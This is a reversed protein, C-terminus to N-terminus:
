LIAVGIAIRGAHRQQCFLQDPKLGIHHQNAATLADERCFLCRGADRNDVDVHDVGDAKAQDCAFRTRSGIDGPTRQRSSPMAPFCTSIASSRIGPVLLIPTRPSTLWGAFMNCSRSTSAAAPFDATLIAGTSIRVTSSILAAMWVNTRSPAFM